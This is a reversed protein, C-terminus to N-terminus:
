GKIHLIVSYQITNQTAKIIIDNKYFDNIGGKITTIKKYKGVWNFLGSCYFICYTVYASLFCHFSTYHTELKFKVQINRIYVM